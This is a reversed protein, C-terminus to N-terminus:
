KLTADERLDIYLRAVVEKILDGVNQNQRFLKKLISKEIETGIKPIRGTLMYEKVDVFSLNDILDQLSFNRGKRYMKTSLITKCPRLSKTCVFISTNVVANEFVPQPRVAYSSIRFDSCNNLLLRHVGTLSDSSTMSIPVIYTLTGGKKLLNYGLEIFLTYTDLSGKQIGAITKATVYNDKYIAKEAQTMKAGYPPNGIVIDFGGKDFVDYYYTHWM